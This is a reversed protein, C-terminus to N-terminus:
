TSSGNSCRTLSLKNKSETQYSEVLLLIITATTAACLPWDNEYMHIYISIKLAREGPKTQIAYVSKREFNLTCFTGM